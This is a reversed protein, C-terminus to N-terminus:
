MFDMEIKREPFLLKQSLKKNNFMENGIAKYLKIMPEFFGMYNNYEVDYSIASISNKMLQVDKPLLPTGYAFTKWNPDKTIFIKKFLTWKGNFINPCSTVVCKVDPNLACVMEYTKDWNVFDANDVVYLGINTAYQMGRSKNDYNTEGYSVVFTKLGDKTNFLFNTKRPVVQKPMRREFADKIKDWYIVAYKENCFHFVVTKNNKAFYDVAYNILFTTTGIQRGVNFLCRQSKDANAKMAKAANDRYQKLIEM